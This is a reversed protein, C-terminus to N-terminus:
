DWLLNEIKMDQFSSLEAFGCVSYGTQMNFEAYDIQNFKGHQYDICLQNLDFIGNDYLHRILSNTEFRQIGHEDIITKYEKGAVKVIIEDGTKFEM